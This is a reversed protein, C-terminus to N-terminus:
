HHHPHQQHPQQLQQFQQMPPQQPLHHHHQEPPLQQQQDQQIPQQIPQSGNIVTGATYGGHTLQEQLESIRATQKEVLAMLQEIRYYYQTQLHKSEDLQKQLQMIYAEQGTRNGSM